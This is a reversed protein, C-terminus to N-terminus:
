AGEVAAESKKQRLLGKEGPLIIHLIIGLVLSVVTVPYMNLGWPGTAWTPTWFTWWFNVIYVVIVTIWTAPRSIKFWMGIIYVVFLPIGFSFCWLFIPFVVPMFLAPVAFLLVCIIMCVKMNRMKGKDSMNPFLSREVIDKALVQANGLVTAGGTSLTAALLCIMLVGMIPKPLATLALKIPILKAVQDAPLANVLAPITMGALALVVWPISALSNIGAGIFVGKRCDADSRAAFFPANMNQAVAAASLHLVTVPIIIQFIVGPSFDFNQLFTVKGASDYFAKVGEWGNVNAMLWGGVLFLCLYSGVIMVIANIMNLWAMQLIGGFFVYLGILVLAIVICWPFFPIAGDSLGYIATGTAITEAAGIGTWTGITVAAHLRGMKPGFIKEMVQPFTNMGTRRMWPGLFLMMIPLFIGGTIIGWWLVSAGLGVSSEWLSLTHGSGLPILVFCFVLMVWGLGGASKNFDEISKIKRRAVFGVALTLILYYLVAIIVAM